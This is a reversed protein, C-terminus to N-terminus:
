TATSANRPFTPTKIREELSGAWGSVRASKRRELLPLPGFTDACDKSGRAVVPFTVWEWEWDGVGM